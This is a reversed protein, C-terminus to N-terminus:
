KVSTGLRALTSVNSLNVEDICAVRFDITASTVKDLLASARTEFDLM